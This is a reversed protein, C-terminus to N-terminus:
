ERSRTSRAWRRNRRRRAHLMIASALAGAIAADSALSGAGPDSLTCGGSQPDAVGGGSGTTANSCGSTDYHCGPGCKLMGIGLDLDLCDTTTLMDGDCDENKELKGDNCVPPQVSNPDGPNSHQGPPNANGPKWMGTPDGLEVGNPYGDGDSDRLYLPGCNGTTSPNLWDVHQQETPVNGVLHCRADSGFPTFTKGDTSMHCNMCMFVAGNPIDNVRFDRAAAEGAVFFTSAALVGAPWLFRM